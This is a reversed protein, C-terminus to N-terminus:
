WWCNHTNSEVRISSPGAGPVQTLALASDQAAFFGILGLVITGAFKSISIM